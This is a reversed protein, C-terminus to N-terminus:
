ARGGRKKDIRAVACKLIVTLLSCLAFDMGVLAWINWDHGLIALGVFLISAGLLVLTTQVHNLGTCLLLHHVHNKDPHFPSKHQMIRTFMVRLTDFLPVSLLCIAVAPAATCHMNAPVEHYANIECFKFVFATLIYGLLLAGSDGMFIKRKSKGFVNYFFFVGLSGVMSYALVAWGIIDSFQFYLAFCLCYLIGLGSALGDVGDVLNLANVIVILVFFSILFSWVINIEGIGLFNHLHSLRIDAFGILSVGALIEGLLKATPTLDLIDDIFGVLVIIVAGILLFQAEQLVNYEFLLYSILFSFCIDIGGINPIEGTHSMRKNPKVVFHKERAIKLVIPMLALGIIFSVIGILVPYTNLLTQM